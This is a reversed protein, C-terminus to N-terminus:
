RSPLGTRTAGVAVPESEQLLPQTPCSCSAYSRSPAAHLAQDLLSNLPTYDRGLTLDYGARPSRPHRGAISISVVDQLRGTSSYRNLISLLRDDREGDGIFLVRRRDPFWRLVDAIAQEDDYSEPRALDFELARAYTSTIGALNRSVLAKKAYPFHHYFAEVGPFLTRRANREYWSVQFAIEQQTLFQKRFAHWQAEEAAHGHLRLDLFCPIAWRWFTPSFLKRGLFSYAIAKAPSPALTDDLDSVVQDIRCIRQVVAELSAGEHALAPTSQLHSPM